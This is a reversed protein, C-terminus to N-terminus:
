ALLPFHLFRTLDSKMCIYKKGRLGRYFSKTLYFMFGNILEETIENVPKEKAHTSKNLFM